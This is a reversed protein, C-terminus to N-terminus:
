NTAIWADVAVILNLSVVIMSRLLDLVIEGDLLIPSGVPAIPVTFRKSKQDYTRDVVGSRHVILNRHAAEVARCVTLFLQARHRVDLECLAAYRTVPEGDVYEMVLYPIGSDTVGGDILRAINPHNLGALVRRERVFLRQELESFLGRRLMKVAVNQQFDHGVREGLFVSAMGGQGLLRVIRFMGIQRGIMPQGLVPALVKGPLRTSTMRAQLIALNM